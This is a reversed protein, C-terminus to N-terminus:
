PFQMFVVRRLEEVSTVGDRVMRIGSERMTVMGEALAAERIMGAPKGALVLERIQDTVTLVEFIATRGRYGLHDCEACGVPAYLVELDHIGLEAAEDVVPRYPKRCHPCLKRVLRQGIAALVSSTILYPEVGMELLRGVAGAADNTHLTSLVLHGTLAAQVAVHGTEADRIEGVMIADPDQRLIARLIVPFTAGTKVLVPIQTTGPLDYEVPDEVTMVNRSRHNIRSLCAYLTTTKGSGTPGTVLMIGYPKALLQTVLLEQTSLLGLGELGLLVRNKDLIRVAAREGFVSGVSAIRLDLARGRWHLRIRGDQPRTREAIDMGALVKIRSVVAAAVERPLATKDYLLGDIRYRVTAQDAQQEVHIDTARDRVAGDIISDLLRVVPPDYPSESPTVPPSEHGALEVEGVAQLSEQVKGEVDLHRGVVVNFDRETTQFPRVAARTFIRVQDIAAVDSPDVMALLVENGERAFPMVRHTTIVWDPVSRLLDIDIPQTALSVYPLESQRGLVSGLAENSVYGREVLIQGLREGTRQQDKLADQLQQETILGSEVLMRGLLTRPPVHYRLDGAPVAHTILTGRQVLRALAVEIEHVPVNLERALAPATVGDEPHGEVLALLQRHLDASPTGGSDVTDVAM